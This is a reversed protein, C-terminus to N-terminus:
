GTAATANRGRRDAQGCLPLLVRMVTGVGEESEVEIRGGLEHVYQRTEYMGIGMGNIKTTRFPKFLEDQIFQGSMGSGSDSVEVRGMEGDCTLRARVKGRGGSAELANQVIHGLVRELREAHALVQVHRDVDISATVGQSAKSAVIRELLTGIDVSRPPNIAAKEQLQAMLGRMKAEANAVTDIMDAQFEPNDRHRQSNKVLLGLQAVLNKLDHVVFASMRNFSDFKQAELLADAAMMQSLYSAAQRQATKLLDLVEWDVQFPARPALLVVFGVVAEACTLPIVLWADDIASIWQPPEPDDTGKSLYRRAELNVIWEREFLFRAFDGDDREVHKSEPMNLRAFQSLNGDVGRLWLAGGPSEVLDALAKIVSEGLGRTGEASSLARTFKLWESRYDYRYSFLHKSLFVRLRARQSGSFVVLGLILLGAFLLAAQLARGWEGGFYRVYYGAASILLLYAGSAALASSHFALDRSISVRLPTGTSRMASLAVLPLVLVGAVGRVAWIDADIRGFLFGDSYLYLDFGGKAILALCLPKISWREAAPPLRFLQETLVLLTVAGILQALIMGKAPDGLLRFEFGAVVVGLFQLGVVAFSLVAPWPIRASSAPWILAVIFGYWLGSSLVGVVSAL